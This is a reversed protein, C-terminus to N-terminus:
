DWHISIATVTGRDYRTEPTLHGPDQGFLWGIDQRCQALDDARLLHESLTSLWPLRCPSSFPPRADGPNSGTCRKSDGFIAVLTLGHAPLVISMITFLESLDFLLPVRKM